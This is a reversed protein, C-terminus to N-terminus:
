AAARAKDAAAQAYTGKLEGMFGLVDRHVSQLGGHTANETEHFVVAIWTAIGRLRLQANDSRARSLAVDSADGWPQYRDVHESGYLHPQPHQAAKQIEAAVLMGLARKASVPLEDILKRVEKAQRALMVYRTLALMKTLFQMAPRPFKTTPEAKVSRSSPNNM